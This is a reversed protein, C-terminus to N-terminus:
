LLYGISFGGEKYTLDYFFGALFRSGFVNTNAGFEFSYDKHRKLDENRVVVSKAKNKHIGVGAYFVFIIDSDYYDSLFTDYAEMSLGAFYRKHDIDGGSKYVGHKYGASLGLGNQLIPVNINAGLSKDENGYQVVVSQAISMQCVTVLIILIILRM